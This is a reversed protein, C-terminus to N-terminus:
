LLFSGWVLVFIYMCVFSPCLVGPVCVLFSFGWMMGNLFLMCFLSCVKWLVLLRLFKYIWSVLDLSFVPLMEPQLSSHFLLSATFYFVFNYNNFCVNGNFVSDIGHFILLVIAVTLM